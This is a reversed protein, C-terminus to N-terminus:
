AFVGVFALLGLILCCAWGVVFVVTRLGMNPRGLGMIHVVVLLLRSILFVSALGNVWAPNAGALIAALTVAAFMGALEMANQYARTTRYTTDRYDARPVEGPAYGAAASRAAAVPGLILGVMAFAALSVIAHGYAAFQEMDKGIRGGGPVWADEM